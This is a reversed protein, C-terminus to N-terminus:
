DCATVGGVKRWQGPTVSYYRKFAKSFSPVDSYGAKDAISLLSTDASELLEKAKHMRARERYTKITEKFLLKFIKQLKTKNMCAEKALAAVTYHISIDKLLLQQVKLVAARDFENLQGATKNNEVDIQDIAKYLLEQAKLNLLPIRMRGFRNYVIEDVVRKISADQFFKRDMVLNSKSGKAAHLLEQLESPLDKMLKRILCCSYHVSFVGYEKDNMLSLQVNALPLYALFHQDSNVQYVSGQISFSFESKYNVALGLFPGKYRSTVSIRKTPKINNFWMTYGSGKIRRFMYEGWVGKVIEQQDVAYNRGAIEFSEGIGNTSGENQISIEM